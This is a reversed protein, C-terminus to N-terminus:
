PNIRTGDLEATGDGTARLALFPIRSRASKQVQIGKGRRRSALGLSRRSLPSNLQCGNEVSM